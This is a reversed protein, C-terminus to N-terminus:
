GDGIGTDHPRLQSIARGEIGIAEGILHFLTRNFTNGLSSPSPYSTPCRCVDLYSVCPELPGHLGESWWQYPPIDLPDYGAAKNGMMDIQNVIPIRSVYDKVREEISLDTNCYLRQQDHQQQRQNKSTFTSSCTCVDKWLPDALVQRVSSFSSVVLLLLITISRWSLLMLRSQRILTLHHDDDDHHTPDLTLTFQIKTV